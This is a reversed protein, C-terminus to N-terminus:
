CNTLIECKVILKVDKLLKLLVSLSFFHLFMHMYLCLINQQFYAMLKGILLNDINSLIYYNYVAYFISYFKIKSVKMLKWENCWESANVTM